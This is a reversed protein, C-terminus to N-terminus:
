LDIRQKLPWNFFWANREYWKYLGDDWTMFNGTIIWELFLIVVVILMFPNLLFFARFPLLLIWCIRRIM